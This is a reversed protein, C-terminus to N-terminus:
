PADEATADEKAAPVDEATAPPGGLVAMLEAARRSLNGPTLPDALLTELTRRAAETEGARLQALAELELASHRWPANAASLGALRDTLAAVDAGDFNQQLALLKGLQRYVPTADGDEALRDLSAIAAAADGAEIQAEAARLRALVDYGGGADEALALFAAAAESPRDQRLLEAAAVYRRAEELRQSQQYNRWAVGAGTGLVAALAGGIIYASYHRWLQLWRDQRVAEDVERIFEDSVGSGRGRM